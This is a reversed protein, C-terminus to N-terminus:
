NQTERRAVAKPQLFRIAIWASFGHMAASYSMKLQRAMGLETDSIPILLVYAVLAPLGIITMWGGWGFKLFSGGVILAPLILFPSWLTAFIQARTFSLLMPMVQDAIVPVYPALLSLLALIGIALIPPMLVISAGLIIWDTWRLLTHGRKVTRFISM